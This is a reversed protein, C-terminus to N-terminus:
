TLSSAIPIPRVYRPLDRRSPHILCAIKKANPSGGGGLLVGCHSRRGSELKEGPVDVVNDRGKAGVAGFNKIRAKQVDGVAM